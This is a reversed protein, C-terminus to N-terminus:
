FGFPNGGAAETGGTEGTPEAGGTTEGETNPGGTLRSSWAESWIDYYASVKKLVELTEDTLQILATTDIFCGSSVRVGNITTEDLSYYWNIKERILYGSWEVNEKYVKIPNFKVLKAKTTTKFTNEEERQEDPEITQADETQTTVMQNTQPLDEEFLFMKDKKITKIDEIETLSIQKGSKQLQRIKELFKRDDM